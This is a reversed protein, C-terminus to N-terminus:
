SRRRVSERSRCVVNQGDEFLKAAYAECDKKRNFGRIADQLYYWGGQDGRWPFVYYDFDGEESRRPHMFEPEGKPKSTSVFIPSEDDELWTLGRPMSPDAECQAVWEGTKGAHPQSWWQYKWIRLGTM